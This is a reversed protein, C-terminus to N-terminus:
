HIVWPLWLTDAPTCTCVIDGRFGRTVSHSVPLFTDSEIRILAAPSGANSAQANTYGIDEIEEQGPQGCPLDEILHRIEFGFVDFGSDSKGSTSNVM